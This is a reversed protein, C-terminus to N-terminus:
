ELKGVYYRAIDNLRVLIPIWGQMADQVYRLLFGDPPLDRASDACQACSAPDTRPVHTRNGDGAGSQLAVRLVDTTGPACARPACDSESTRLAGRFPVRLRRSRGDPTLGSRGAARPRSYRNRAGRLDVDM